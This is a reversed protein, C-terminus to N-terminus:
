LVTCLAIGSALSPSSSSEFVKPGKAIVRQMPLITNGASNCQQATYAVFYVNKNQYALQM